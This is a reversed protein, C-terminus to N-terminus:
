FPHMTFSRKFVGGPELSNMGRKGELSEDEDTSTACGTWPELAVFPAKREYSWVGLYDFGEFGVTMGKGSKTGELTVVSDPVNTFCLTDTDFLHRTLPVVASDEMVTMPHQWDWLGTAVLIPSQATWPKAFRLQYDEFVEGTAPNLPVNFAPHGGIVFPLDVSGTNVVTFSQRISEDPTLAYNMTLQFDYPYLAKTDDNANLTLTIEDELAEDIAFPSIRAVGHRKMPAPGQATQSWDDRLRGVIPFLVPAQGKWWRGDGQWLYEIGERKISTLQAGFSDVTITLPGKTLTTLTSDRDM